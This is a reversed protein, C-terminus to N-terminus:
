QHRQTHNPNEGRVAKRTMDMQDQLYQIAESRSLGESELLRTMREVARISLDIAESPEGWDTPPYHSDIFKTFNDILLFREYKEAQETTHIYDFIDNKEHSIDENGSAISEIYADLSRKSQRQAAELEHMGFLVIVGTHDLVLADIARTIANKGHGGSKQRVSNVGSEMDILWSVTEDGLGTLRCISQIDTNVSRVDILGLLWDASVELGKAISALRDTDPKSQGNMYLSVTQRQVGIKEALSSQTEGRESMRERLRTPFVGKGSDCAPTEKRPM